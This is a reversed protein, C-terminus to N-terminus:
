REYLRAFDRRMSRKTELYGADPLASLRVAAALAREKAAQPDPATEDLFGAQLAGATDFLRAGATAAYQFRTDIRDRVLQQTPVPVDLGYKVESLGIKGPGEIGIRHDAVMLLMAGAATAHGRGIVVSRLPGLYLRALIGGMLAILQGARDDGALVTETDLGVSLADDRGSLVLTNVADTQEAELLAADLRAAAELTFINMGGDDLRISQIAGGEDNVEIDM